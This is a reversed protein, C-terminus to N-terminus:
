KNKSFEIVVGRRIEVYLEYSLYESLMSFFFTQSYLYKEFKKYKLKQKNHLILM